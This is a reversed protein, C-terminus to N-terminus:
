AGIQRGGGKQAGLFVPRDKGEFMFKFFLQPQKFIEIKPVPENTVSKM